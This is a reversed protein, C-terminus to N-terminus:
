NHNTSMAGVSGDKTSHNAELQYDGTDECRRKSLVNTGPHKKMVSNSSFFDEIRRPQCLEEVGTRDQVM